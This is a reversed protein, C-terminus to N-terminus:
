RTTWKEPDVMNSSSACRAAIASLHHAPAPRSSMTPGSLEASTCRCTGVILRTSVDARQYPLAHRSSSVLSKRM